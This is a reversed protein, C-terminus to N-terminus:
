SWGPLWLHAQQFWGAVPMGSWLPFFIVALALAAILLIAIAIRRGQVAERSSDLRIGALAFVSEARGGFSGFSALALALALAAFPTLVVAYFQFVASRSFTLVWPLWGSLYGVLVFCVPWLAPGHVSSLLPSLSRARAARWLARMAVWLLLAVAVIGGWTILPNPLSAIESVCGGAWPCDAGQETRLRYMVTPRLALPWTLPHAQYPHEATLSAHWALTHAHWEWLSVWWPEGSARDQGGPNVIWGIWTATYALLATPLAIAATVLAQRATDFWARRPAIRQRLILDRVTVLVLFAALAYLGSWKVAAAAGFTLGAAVM